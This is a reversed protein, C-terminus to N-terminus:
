PHEQFTQCHDCKAFYDTRNGTIHPHHEYEVRSRLNRWNWAALAFRDVPEDRHRERKM